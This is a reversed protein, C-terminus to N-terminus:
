ILERVKQILEEPLWGEEVSQVILKNVDEQIVNFLALLDLQLPAAVRNFEVENLKDSGILEDAM